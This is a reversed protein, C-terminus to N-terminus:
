GAHVALSPLRLPKRVKLPAPWCTRSLRQSPSRRAAEIVARTLHAPPVAFWGTKWSPSPLAVRCSKTVGLLPAPTQSSLITLPALM